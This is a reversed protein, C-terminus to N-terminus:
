NINEIKGIINEVMYKAGEIEVKNDLIRIILDLKIMTAVFDMKIKIIKESNVEFKLKNRKLIKILTNEDIKFPITAIVKKNSLNWLQGYIISFFVIYIWSMVQKKFLFISVLNLIILMTLILTCNMFITKIGNEVKTYKADVSYRM